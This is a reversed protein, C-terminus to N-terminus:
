SARLDDRIAALVQPTHTYALGHGAGDIVEHHATRDWKAMQGMAAIPIVDDDEGWIALVPVDERTLKRHDQELVEDLIGRLSSLVSGIWGQYGQENLQQEVIQPVSSSLGREAECGARHQKPYSAYMLWTGLLPREKVIRATRGLEHGMGAPALLILRRLREPSRSTFTTVIAGGMSYGLLTIDAKIGQRDLVDDLQQLFFERTQPGKPRDSYGRGYLDYTLVRFGQKVLGEAIGEWVFSPTTLGHVCVAIPGRSGGFWRYHTVGQSLTAFEGPANARASADMPKRMMERVFPYAAIGAVILFVFLLWIM